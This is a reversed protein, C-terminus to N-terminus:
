EQQVLPFDEVETPYGLRSRPVYLRPSCPFTLHEYADRLRVADNGHGVREVNGGSRVGQLNTTGASESISSGKVSM